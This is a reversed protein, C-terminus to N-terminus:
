SRRAARRLRRQPEQAPPGHDAVSYAVWDSTKPDGVALNLRGRITGGYSMSLATILQEVEDIAIYFSVSSGPELRHPLQPNVAAGEVSYSGGGKLDIYFGTVDIPSRGGNAGTVVFIPTDVGAHRFSELSGVIPASAVRGQGMAGWHLEVDVRAGSLVHQRIQWVTNVVSLILGIVAIALTM